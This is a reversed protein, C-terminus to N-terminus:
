GRSVAECRACLPLAAAVEYELQSGTGRWSDGLGPQRSCLSLPYGLNPSEFPPLLHARKGTRAYVRTCDAARAM